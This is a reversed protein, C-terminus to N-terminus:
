FRREKHFRELVCSILNKLRSGQFLVPIHKYEGLRKTIIEVKILSLYQM